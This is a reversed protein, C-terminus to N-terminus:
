IRANIFQQRIEVFIHSLGDHVSIISDPKYFTCIGASYPILSNRGCCIDNPWLVHLYLSAWFRVNRLKAHFTRFMTQTFYLCISFIYPISLVVMNWWKFVGKGDSFTKVVSSVSDKPVIIIKIRYITRVKSSAKPNIFHM